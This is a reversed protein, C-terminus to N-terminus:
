SRRSAKQDSDAYKIEIQVCRMVGLDPTVLLQRSEESKHYINQQDLFIWFKQAYLEVLIDFASM